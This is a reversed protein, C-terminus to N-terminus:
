RPVGDTVLVPVVVRSNSDSTYVYIERDDAPSEGGAYVLDGAARSLFPPARWGLMRLRLGINPTTPSDTSLKVVAVRDGVPFAVSRVEVVCRQNPAITSPKVQPRACTCSAEVGVVRVPRGGVTEQVFVASAEDVASSASTTNPPERHRWTLEPNLAMLKGPANARAARLMTVVSGPALLVGLGLMALIRFGPPRPVRFTRALSGPMGDAGSPRWCLCHRAKYSFVQDAPLLQFNLLGYNLV